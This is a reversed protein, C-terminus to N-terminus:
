PRAEGATLASRVRTVLVNWDLERSVFARGAAGIRAALAPMDLLRCVADTFGTAGDAVMLERGPTWGLGRGGVRTTVVPAGAAMAEVVKINVGSGSRMPNLAVAAAALYGHVSVVDTHVSVREQGRLWAVLDPGGRRGIVQLSARPHRTRIAPWCTAIFWRLAETNTPTDLSGVFLLRGPDRDTVVGGAAGAVALRPLFPPLHMARAGWQERRRAHDAVSIDAICTVTPSRQLAHEARRLRHYEVGYALSRPGSTGRALMRVYESDINHARVLHPIRWARAIQEGLHAARCSYSIVADADPPTGALMRRLPGAPRSAYAYPRLGLHARPGRTRPLGIVAAGPLAAQYAAMDLAAPTPVLVRLGTGAAAAAALFTLTEVRGGADAPLFPEEVVVIWREPDPM